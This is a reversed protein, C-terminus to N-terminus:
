DATKQAEIKGDQTYFLQRSKETQIKRYCVAGYGLLRASQNKLKRGCRLCFEHEKKGLFEHETGINESM